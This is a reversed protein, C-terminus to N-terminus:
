FHHIYRCRVIAALLSLSLFFTNKLDSYDSNSHLAFCVMVGSVLCIKLMKMVLCVFFGRTLCYNARKGKMRLQLSNVLEIWTLAKGM